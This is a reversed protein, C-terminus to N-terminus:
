YWIGRRWRRWGIRYWRAVHIKCCSSFITTTIINSTTTPSPLHKTTEHCGLPFPKVDSVVRLYKKLVVQGLCMEVSSEIFEHFSLYQTEVQIVWRHYFQLFFCPLYQWSSGLIWRWTIVFFCVGANYVMASQFIFWCHYNCRISIDQDKHYM